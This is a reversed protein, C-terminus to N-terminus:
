MKAMKQVEFDSQLKPTVLRFIILYLATVCVSLFICWKNIGYVLRCLGFNMVQRRIGIWQVTAVM